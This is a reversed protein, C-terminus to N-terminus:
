IISMQRSNDLYKVTEERMMGEQIESRKHLIM